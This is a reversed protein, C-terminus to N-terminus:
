GGHMFPIIKVIDGDKIKYTSYKEKDIISCDNVTVGFENRAIFGFRETAKLHNILEQLNDVIIDIESSNVNIM